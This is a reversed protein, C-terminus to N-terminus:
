VKTILIKREIEKVRWRTSKRRRRGKGSRMPKDDIKEEQEEESEINENYIEKESFDGIESDESDADISIEEWVGSKYWGQPTEEKEKGSAHEESKELEEHVEESDSRKEENESKSSEETEKLDEDESSKEGDSDEELEEMLEEESSSSLEIIKEPRGRKRPIQAVNKKVFSKKAAIKSAVLGKTSKRRGRRSKEERELAQLTKRKQFRTAYRPVKESKESSHAKSKNKPDPNASLPQTGEDRSAIKRKQSVKRRGGLEMDKTPQTKDVQDTSKSKLEAAAESRTLMMVQKAQNSDVEMDTQPPNRSLADANINTKGAKYVVTFEYEELKLRWRTLRSTPDKATQM